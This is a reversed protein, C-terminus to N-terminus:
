PGVPLARAAVWRDYIPQRPNGAHDRIGMTGFVKFSVEADRKGVPTAAQGRVFDIVGCWAPSFTCPCDTMVQPILFDRNSIWTILEVDNAIGADVVRDFYDAQEAPTSALATLCRANEDTVVISTALWGTEAILLTEGGRRAARGFYDGPVADPHAFGAFNYPYTSIAFRDRKLGAIAAYEIEYCEEATKPPSCGVRGYLIDIQISPFAPATPAALKAADYADRELAVMGPWAATCTLHFLSVEVAINTWRPQFLRAMYDVYHAYAIRLSAGDAATALDYCAPKWGHVVDFGTTTTVANPALHTRDGDLPALALFIPKGTAHAQQALETMKAAWAAPPSTNTAFAEWPVGFFDQHVNIVDVDGALEPDAFVVGAAPDLQVAASALRYARTPADPPADASAGADADSGGGGGGCTSIALLSVVALSGTM